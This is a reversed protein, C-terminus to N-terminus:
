RKYVAVHAMDILASKGASSIRATKWRQIEASSVLEHAM